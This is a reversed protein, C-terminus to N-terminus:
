DQAPSINPGQQKGTSTSVEFGAGASDDSLYLTPPTAPDLKGAELIAIEFFLDGDVSAGPGIHLPLPLAKISPLGLFREPVWRAPPLGWAAPAWRKAGREEERLDFFLTPALVATRKRERNTIYVRIYFLRVRQGGYPAEGPEDVDDASTAMVRIALDPFERLAAAQSGIAALAAVGWLLGVAAFVFGAIVWGDAFLKTSSGIGAASTEIQVQGVGILFLLGAASLLLGAAALM